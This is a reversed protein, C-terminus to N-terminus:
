AKPTNGAAIGFGCVTLAALVKAQAGDPIVDFIAELATLTGLITYVIQRARAPILDRLM